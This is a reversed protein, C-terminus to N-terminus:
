YRGLEDPWIHLRVFIICGICLSATLRDLPSAHPKDSDLADILLRLHREVSHPVMKDPLASSRYISKSTMAGLPM